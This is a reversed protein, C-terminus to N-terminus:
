PRAESLLQSQQVRAPQQQTICHIGGGGVAIPLAPCSRLERDPFQEAIIAAANRDAGPQAFSPVVLVDNAIYFNVYSLTLREGAATVVPEPAPLQGVELGHDLLTADAQRCIDVDVDGATPAHLLVRGPGVFCAIEDIHGHTHDDSLGAPLVIAQEAGTYQLLQALLEDHDGDPNRRQDFLSQATVMVRQAGDVHVAGGELVMRSHQLPLQLHQALKGAVARDQQWPRFRDGWGNFNWSLAHQQGSHDFVFSPGSDRMWADDYRLPWQQVASGLLTRCHAERAAPILMLVPEFESITNAVAAYAAEAEQWGDGWSHQQPWAMLTRQHPQWEAPMWFRQGSQETM